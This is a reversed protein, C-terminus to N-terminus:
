FPFLRSLQWLTPFLLAAPKDGHHFPDPSQGRGLQVGRIQAPREGWICAALSVPCPIVGLCRLPCFYMRASRIREPSIAAPHEPLTRGLQQDRAIVYSACNLACGVGGGVFMIVNHRGIPLPARLSVNLTRATKARHIKQIRLILRVAMLQMDAMPGSSSLRKAVIIEV